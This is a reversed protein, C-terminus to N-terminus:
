FRFLLCGKGVTNSKEIVNQSIITYELSGYCNLEQGLFYPILFYQIMGVLRVKLFMQNFSPRDVIKVHQASPKVLKNSTCM